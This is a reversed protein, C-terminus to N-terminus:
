VVILNRMKVKGFGKKNLIYPVNYESAIILPWKDVTTAESVFQARNNIVLEHNPQNRKLTGYFFVKTLASMQKRLYMKFVRKLYKIM